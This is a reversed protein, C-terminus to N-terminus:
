ANNERASYQCLDCKYPKEGIHKNIHRRMNSNIFTDFPCKFCMFKSYEYPSNRPMQICTRCHEILTNTDPTFQLKCYQCTVSVHRKWKHVRLCKYEIASYSCSDCKHPKENLHKYIHKKINAAHYTFYPCTYCRIIFRQSNQQEIALCQRCHNALKTPDPPLTITCYMCVTFFICTYPKEGLHIRVHRKINGSIYTTYSCAYCMFKQQTPDERPM